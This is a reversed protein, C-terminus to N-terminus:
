FQLENPNYTRYSIKNILEDADNYIATTQEYALPIGKVLEQAEAESTYWMPPRQIGKSLRYIRFGAPYLPLRAGKLIAKPTKGGNEDEADVEQVPYRSVDIGAKLADSLEMHALYASFYLGINTVNNMKRTKTFGQRWASAIDDNKIYPAKCPYVYIVHLHWAGRGQPEAIAIYEPRPLHNIEHYRCFRRNFAKFDSYLRERDTMNERYTLTVFKAKHATTVNHNIIDRLRRLSQKVSATDDARSTMHIVPKIEGTNLDIFEESNLRQVSIEPKRSMARVEYIAGTQKVRVPADPDLTLPTQSREIKM